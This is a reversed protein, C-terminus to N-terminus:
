PVPLSALYATKLRVYGGRLPIGVAGLWDMVLPSRLAAYIRELPVAGTPRIAYATDIALRGEADVAARPTRAADPVVIKPTRDLLWRLNQPRGWRYFTAGRFRGGERAELLRRCRALLAAALPFRAALEDPLLLRDGDYPFVAWRRLALTGEGVDRGRACPVLAGDEVDVPAALAASYYAGGRRELLFVPDANTGAGKAIRAIEGLPPGARRLRDVVGTALVWPAAGLRAAPIRGAVGGKDVEVEASGRRLYVLATYTTAGPFRQEAGFDVIRRVSGSLHARLREAFAGTLWRSPVVFGVDGDPRAWALARELFAGYVDWEKYSTAAFAGRLRAWLAPDARKLTVARVYPPNGVVADYTGLEIGGGLLAEGCRVDAGEGLAARAAACAGPDRDVGTLTRRVIARRAAREDIGRAAAAAALVRACEVLFRGDGVAPDLVRLRPSGDARWAARALPRALTEAVVARVIEPPTAFAGAAKRRQRSDV